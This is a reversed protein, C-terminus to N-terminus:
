DKVRESYDGTRTDVRIKEGESVFLPINV